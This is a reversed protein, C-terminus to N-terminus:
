MFEKSEPLLSISRGSSSVESKREFDQDRHRTRVIPLSMSCRGRMKTGAHHALGWAEGHVRGTWKEAGHVGTVSRKHATEREAVKEDQHQLM